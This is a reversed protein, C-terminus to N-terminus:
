SCPAAIRDHATTHSWGVTERAVRKYSLGRYSYVPTGYCPTGALVFGAVATNRSGLSSIGYAPVPNVAVVQGSISVNFAVVVGTPPNPNAITVAKCAAASPASVRGGTDVTALTFCAQGNQAATFTVTGGLASGALTAPTLATCPAATGGTPTFTCGLSYSAIETAALPTSDTRATPRTFTLSGTAALAPVALLMGMMLIILRRM